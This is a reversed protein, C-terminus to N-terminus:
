LVRVVAQGMFSPPTKSSLFGPEWLSLARPSHFFHQVGVAGAVAGISTDGGEEPDGSLIGLWDEVLSSM